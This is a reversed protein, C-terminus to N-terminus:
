GLKRGIHAIKSGCNCRHHTGNNSLARKTKYEKNCNSDLCKYINIMTPKTKIEYKNINNQSIVGLKKLEREFVPHGDSHPKGLTYLAYHVLEHALVDLVVDKSHNNVFFGNLEVSIPTTNGSARNIKYRFRGCCTKLRNNITVPIELEIGYTSKLFSKSYSVLENINVSM